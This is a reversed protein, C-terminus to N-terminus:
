ASLMELHVVSFNPSLSHFRESSPRECAFACYYLLFKAWDIKVFTSRFFCWNSDSQFGVPGDPTKGMCQFLCVFLFIFFLFVWRRQVQLNAKRIQLITRAYLFQICHARDLSVMSHPCPPRMSTEQSPGTTHVHHYLQQLCGMETDALQEM